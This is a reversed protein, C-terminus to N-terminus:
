SSWPATPRYANQELSEVISHAYSGHRRKMIGAVEDGYYYAYNSPYGNLDLILTRGSKQVICVEEHEVIISFEDGAKALRSSRSFAGLIEAIEKQSTVPGTIPPLPQPFEGDLVFCIETVTSPAIAKVARQIVLNNLRGDSRRELDM